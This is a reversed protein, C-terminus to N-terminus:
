RLLLLRAANERIVRAQYARSLKVGKDRIVDLRRYAPQLSPESPLDGNGSWIQRSAHGVETKDILISEVEMGDHETM